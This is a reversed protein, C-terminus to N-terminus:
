HTEKWSNGINYEGDLPVALNLVEGTLRIAQVALRGVLEANEEPVEVQIEDHIWAVQHAGLRDTEKDLLRHFEVMWRKCVVAGASQLLSNLAAHASRIHIRRGDLGVLYKRNEAGAKTFDILKALAPTKRLFEAKLKAGERKTKRGTVEAIKEPGAGYLFAYIFRKSADRSDLGAAKQNATHIDGNVVEKAYEGNDFQAMYHGLMRLELGSADIGVLKMGKPIIFLDRCEPGYPAGCGPVQALNPSSHTARGTVAGNTNVGGHIRGTKSNVKRLWANDGEGIQGIRKQVLFFETLRQAEPYKLKSLVTEDIKPKGGPTLEKPKWNYKNILRDAIHDRSGPNFTFFKVPTFDAGAVKSARAPDKYNVTKTVKKVEGEPKVWQPFLNQLDKELHDRKEVLQAYLSAAAQENFLFGRVQQASIITAVQHELDLAEHSYKSTGIIQRLRLYLEQTVEADQECYDQMERSWEEWGGAYDGKYNGMRSGWAALSHSGIQKGPMSLQNSRIKALDKDLIDTFILRSIVLTDKVKEPDVSFWPYIKQIVPIDFSIVNHGVIKDAKTLLSLGSEVSHYVAPDGDDTCSVVEGTDIDKLVLSHIKTAEALFGDSELDFIYSAM